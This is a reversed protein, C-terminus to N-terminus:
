KMGKLRKAMKKETEWGGKRVKGYKVHEREKGRKEELFVLDKFFFIYTKEKEFEIFLIYFIKKEKSNERGEGEM